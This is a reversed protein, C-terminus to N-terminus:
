NKAADANLTQELTLDILLRWFSTSTRRIWFMVRKFQEALQM